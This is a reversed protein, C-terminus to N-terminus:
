ALLHKAKPRKQLAHKVQNLFRGYAPTDMPSLKGNRKVGYHLTRDSLDSLTPTYLVIVKNRIANEVSEYPLQGVGESYTGTHRKGTMGEWVKMYFTGPYAYTAKFDPSTKLEHNWDIAANSKQWVQVAISVKRIKGNNEFDDNKSYM